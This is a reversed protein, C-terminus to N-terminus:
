DKRGTVAIGVGLGIMALGGAGGVAALRKPSRAFWSRAGSAALGWVSDSVWALAVFVLGLLVLQLPVDGASHTVFQPLVAAFFVAAKPNALGVLFGDRLESLRSGPEAGGDQAALAMRRRGRYARV